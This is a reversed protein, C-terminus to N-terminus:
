HCTTSCASCLLACFFNFDNVTDPGSEIRMSRHRAEQILFLSHSQSREEEESLALNVACTM